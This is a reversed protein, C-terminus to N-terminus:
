NELIWTKHKWTDELSALDTDPDIFRQSRRGNLTVFIDAMVIPDEMGKEKWFEKLYKAYQLIFDPQTSMMKEQVSSLHDRNYVIVKRDTNRDKVYFTAEGMKEILMVRWSFRFGEETWFLNGPYLLYRFPFLVQFLLFISFFAIKYGNARKIS